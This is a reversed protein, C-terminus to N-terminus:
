LIPYGQPMPSCKPKPLIKIRLAGKNSFHRSIEETLENYNDYIDNKYYYLKISKCNDHEFVMNLMTRDSLGCSHGLVIVQFSDSEIFRILDHYNETRFYWFSKIYKFFGKTSSKEMLDYYEDLEDGFGFVIPNNPDGLAGHINNVNITDRLQVDLRQIYNYITSTYNFNLIMTQKPQDYRNLNMLPIDKLSIFERLIDEYKRNETKCDVNNLYEHLAEIIGEMSMNLELLATAMKDEKPIKLIKKLQQYYENEIEVWNSVKCKKLLLKLFDSQINVKFTTNLYSHKSIPFSNSYILDELFDNKYCYELLEDTTKPLGERSGIRENYKHEDIMILKDQYSKGTGAISFARKLYGLLFDNYRTPMEHALDFGNGILVLRNM